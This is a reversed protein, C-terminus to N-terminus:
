NLGGYGGNTPLQKYSYPLDLNIDDVATKGKKRGFLSFCNGVLGTLKGCWSSKPPEEADHALLPTKASPNEVTWPHERELDSKIKLLLAIAEKNTKPTENLNLLAQTSECLSKNQRDQVAVHCLGIFSLPLLLSGVMMSIIEIDSFRCRLEQAKLLLEIDCDYYRWPDIYECINDFRIFPCSQRFNDRALDLERVYNIWWAVLFGWGVTAGITTLTLLTRYLNVKREERELASLLEKCKKYQSIPHIHERM